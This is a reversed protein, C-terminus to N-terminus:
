TLNPATVHDYSVEITCVMELSRTGGGTEEEKSQSDRRREGNEHREEEEKTEAIFTSDLTETLM